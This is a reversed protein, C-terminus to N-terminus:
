GAVDLVTRLGRAHALDDLAAGAEALPRHTSVMRDIPFAGRRWLRALRPIDRQPDIGGMFCGLVRKHAVPFQPGPLTITSDPAQLGVAVVTGGQRVTRYGLEVLESRGVADIAVDSRRIPVWRTPWSRACRRATM